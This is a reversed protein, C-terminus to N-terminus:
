VIPNGEDVRYENANEHASIADRMLDRNSKKKYLLSWFVSRYLDSGGQSKAHYSNHFFSNINTGMVYFIVVISLCFTAIVTLLNGAAFVKSDDLNSVKSINTKECVNFVSTFNFIALISLGCMLPGFIMYLYHFLISFFDKVQYGYTHFLVGLSMLIASLAACFSLFSSATRFILEWKLCSNFISKSLTLSKEWAQILQFIEITDILVLIASLSILLYITIQGTRVENNEM